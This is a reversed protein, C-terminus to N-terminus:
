YLFTLTEAVDALTPGCADRESVQIEDATLPWEVAVQPDDYAIGREVEASYYRTQKYLVDAVDSIVAFGHAFGVPVYLAHMNEDTLDFGEWRGYTPSGERLDVIVDWIHGRGCRVLKACGDGIQFHLGRVVGRSSRSHNDQIWQDHIGHEALVSERFTECFFGRDDPFVRPQVLKAGPLTTDLVQM